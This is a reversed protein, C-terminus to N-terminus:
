GEVWERIEKKLTDDDHWVESQKVTYATLYSMYAIFAICVLIKGCKSLQIFRKIGYWAVMIFFGVGSLYIYRDANIVVRSTLVPHLTPLVNLLFFLIGFVFTAHKRCYVVIGSMAAVIVPYIFFHSPVLDGAAIPFPYIYMLNIPIVLKTLYDTLTYCNFIMLQRVPYVVRFQDPHANRLSLMFVGGALAVLLFPIKELWLKKDRLDRGAFWDILPALLPLTLAQESCGFSLIFLVISFIFAAKSDSKLYRMYCLLASLGFLVYLSVKSASVWAVVETNVPHIAFLTATLFAAVWVVKVNERERLGLLTKVFAYVLCTNIAHYLLSALHFAQPDAGFISYLVTYILQNIPAYQGHYTEGFIVGINHIDLGGITFRNIVMWQDYWATMFQHGAVSFFVIIPLVFLSAYVPIKVPLTKRKM